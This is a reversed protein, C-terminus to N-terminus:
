FFKEGNDEKKRITSNLSTEFAQVSEFNIKGGLRLVNMLLINKRISEAKTNGVFLTSDFGFEKAVRAIIIGQPSTVGTGTVIRGDCMDRIYEYNEYVLSIAQRVKGGSIPIDKFPTYLDDRKYCIDGHWEVPTIEKINLGDIISEKDMEM